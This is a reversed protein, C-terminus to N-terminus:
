IIWTGVIAAVGVFLMWRLRWYFKTKGTESAPKDEHQGIFEEGTESAPNDDHQGMLEEIRNQQKRKRGVFIVSERFDKELDLCVSHDRVCPHSVTSPGDVGFRGFRLLFYRGSM